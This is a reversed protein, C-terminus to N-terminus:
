QIIIQFRFNAQTNHLTIFKKINNSGTVKQILNITIWM